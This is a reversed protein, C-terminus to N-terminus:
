LMKDLVKLPQFVKFAKNLDTVSSSNKRKILSPKDVEHKKCLNVFFQVVEETSQDKLAILSKTLDSQPNGIFITVYYVRM